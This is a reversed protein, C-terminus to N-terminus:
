QQALCQLTHKLLLTRQEQQMCQICHGLIWVCTLRQRQSELPEEKCNQITLLLSNVLVEVDTAELHAVNASVLLCLLQAISSRINIQSQALGQSQTSAQSAAGQVLRLLMAGLMSFMDALTRPVDIISAASKRQKPQMNDRQQQNYTKFDTKIDGQQQSEQLRMNLLNFCSKM